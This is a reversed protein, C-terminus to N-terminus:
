RGFLHSQETILLFVLAYKNQAPEDVAYEMVFSGDIGILFRWRYNRFSALSLKVESLLHVPLVCGM